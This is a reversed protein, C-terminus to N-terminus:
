SVQCKLTIDFCFLEIEDLSTECCPDEKPVNAPEKWLKMFLKLRQLHLIFLVQDVPLNFNGGLQQRCIGFGREM